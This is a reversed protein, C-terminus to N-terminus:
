RSEIPTAPQMLMVIDFSSSLKEPDNNPGASGRTMEINQVRVYPFQSEIDAVFRGLDHFYGNAKVHFTATKYSFKPIMNAEGIEPQSVGSGTIGAGRHTSLFQALSQLLWAYTDHDPALQAERATLEKTLDQLRQQLQPEERCLKDAASLKTRTSETKLQTRKLESSQSDGVFLILAAVIAITFITILILQDRKAKPLNNM